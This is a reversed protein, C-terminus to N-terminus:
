IADHLSALEIVNQETAEQRSLEGTLKGERMVLIRDSIGLMEPLESSVCVICGGRLVYDDMLAYFEAKANVDIGRTPEDLIMIDSNAILWKALIVKQQNGGSLTSIFTTIAPTKIKLKNVYEDTVGAEWKFDLFGFRRQHARLSPLVTNDKLMATLMLGTRRRDETVFGIKAAIADKPSAFHTQRGEVLVKGASRQRAGFVTEMVETRGAGVLGYFGLIEGAYATFSIGEFVGKVSLGEVRLMERGRTHITHMYYDKIERGVMNAVIEKETTEKIVLEKVRCGDRLVTVRDAIAFLEKLRHSIYIVAVGAATVTAIQKFLADIEHESLSSTPEDMIVVRANKSIVKAIEVMQQQAATLKGAVADAKISVEMGDLIAQADANMKKRDLFLGQSPEEGLYINEAVTLDAAISLEQHIVAIGKDLAQRPSQPSFPKGNFFVEGATPTYVGSIIKILTSKGAGNEGVIAHVDGAYFGMSLDTLAKVGPFVKHLNRVELCYNM